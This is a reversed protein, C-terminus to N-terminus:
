VGAIALDDVLISPADVGGRRELDAGPILRAFMELLNGAVTIESVPYARAGNEFWFGSFGVSWDGNNANLSPSFMETVLVGEGADAMLAELDREGPQLTVNSSSIGPPGGHGLTAHGTSKLGLQRAASANLMWTTLVGDDILNRKLGAAGEGDFPRSALGRRRFPDDEIVVGKAFVQEGLKEKMFSVGRAVAAGSIAGLLPGILRSSVRNEFIVPARRSEIKRAGLRAVAREGATRGLSSAAPLESLFRTSRGDYDREMKGDREAIVSVGVGYSSARSGGSFGDSTRMEVFGASWSAGSGSSNTVGAVGLAAQEAELAMVELADADPRADDHTDLDPFSTARESADLLGCFPDEPALRAMEVVREALAKLGDPSLDSTTAGAQRKGLFARLGISRGESREVGEFEGMRVDVSLSESMSLSADASDAGAARAHDLLAGLAGDFATDYPM